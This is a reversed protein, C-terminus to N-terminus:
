NIITKNTAPQAPVVKGEKAIQEFWANFVENFWFEGKYRALETTHRGQIRSTGSELYEAYPVNNIITIDFETDEFHSESAGKMVQDLAFHYERGEPTKNTSKWSDYLSTDMIQVSYDQNYKNLIGTWGGRLEGTDLPSVRILYKHIEFVAQLYISKAEARFDDKIRFWEALREPNELWISFTTTDTPKSLDPTTVSTIPSISLMKSLSSGLGFQTTEM